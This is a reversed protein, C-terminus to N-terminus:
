KAAQEGLETPRHNKRSSAGAAREARIRELLVSAPEDNPDQDVLKGEFAWKLISQRLRECQAVSRELEHLTEDAISFKDSLEFVIRRQEELPPLPLPMRKVDSGSIGSQGATTRILLEMHERSSGSNAALEAFPAVTDQLAMKVKILKDPHVLPSIVNKALACVGVLSRTGNYRTFLLDGNEVLFELYQEPQGPLFRIDTLDLSMPRVASIRLITVGSTETPPHSYGNRVLVALQDVTAWCWGEPLQPLKSTEPPVPDKYKSKWRDDKPPKGAAKMRALESDEWRRRREGLIRDLLVSAPEFDRGENRALEAETPVLRGEVATKLVSARYRKLNARARELAAVAANLRSLETEIVEIIRYQELLPPIPLEHARVDNPRVAPYVVGQTKGSLDSIFEETQARYFLWSPSIIIARLIDFGTSAVAGNLAEPVQAVANLNPRTMSVLVDGSRVWQRARTPAESDNVERAGTIRKTARDISTIDIYTVSSNEEPPRQEVRAVVVEGIRTYAWGIPLASRHQSM